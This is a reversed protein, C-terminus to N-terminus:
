ENNKVPTFDEESMLLKKIESKQNIMKSLGIIDIDSPSKGLILEKGIDENSRSKLPTNSYLPM